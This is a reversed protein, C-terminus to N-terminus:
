ELSVNGKKRYFLYFMVFSPSFYALGFWRNRYIGTCMCGGRFSGLTGLIGGYLRSL